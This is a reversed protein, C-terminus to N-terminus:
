LLIETSKLENQTLAFYLNQLQHVYYISVRKQSSDWVYHGHINSIIIIGNFKFDPWTDKNCNDTKEFGFKKLWEETLPIPNYQDLKDLETEFHHKGWRFVNELKGMEEQKWDAYSYINGLRIEQAKIM